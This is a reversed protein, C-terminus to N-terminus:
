VKRTPALTKCGGRRLLDIERGFCSIDCVKLPGAANLVGAVHVDGLNIGCFLLACEVNIDRVYSPLIAFAFYM